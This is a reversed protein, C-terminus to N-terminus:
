EPSGLLNAEVGVNLGATIMKREKVQIQFRKLTILAGLQARRRFMVFFLM